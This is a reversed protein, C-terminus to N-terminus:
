FNNLDQATGGAFQGIADMATFSASHIDVVNSLDGVYNRSRGM